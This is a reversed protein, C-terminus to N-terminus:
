WNWLREASMCSGIYAGERMPAYAHGMRWARSITEERKMYAHGAKTLNDRMMMMAAWWAGWAIRESHGAGFDDSECTLAGRYYSECRVYNSQEIYAEGSATEIVAMPKWPKKPVYVRRAKGSPLVTLMPVLLYASLAVAKQYSKNAKMNIKINEFRKLKAPKRAPREHCPKM